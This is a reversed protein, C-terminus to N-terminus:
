TRSALAARPGDIQKLYDTAVWSDVGDPTLVHMWDRGNAHERPGVLVMPAGEPWVRLGEGDPETRSWVGLGNTSIVIAVRIPDGSEQAATLNPQAGAQAVPSAAPATARAASAASSSPLILSSPPVTSVLSESRAPTALPVTAVNVISSGSKVIPSTSSREGTGNACASVVVLVMLTLTTTLLKGAVSM